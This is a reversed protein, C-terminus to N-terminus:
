NRPRARRARRARPRRKRREKPACRGYRSPTATAGTRAASLFHARRAQLAQTMEHVWSPHVWYAHYHTAHGVEALWIKGDLMDKAISKAQEWMDPEDIKNLDKGECAFTFQCALHRRANQYVVGCVNNPYYGSFVRNMVVQAVAEQGQVARRPSRFLDRRRSMERSQCAAQRQARPPGGPKGAPEITRAPVTEGSAASEKLAAIKIGSGDRGARRRAGLAAPREARGHHRRRLYKASNRLPDEDLFALSAAQPEEQPSGIQGAPPIEPPIDLNADEDAIRSKRCRRNCTGCAAAVVPQPVAPATEALRIAPEPLGEGTTRM